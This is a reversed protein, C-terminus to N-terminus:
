EGEIGLQAEVLALVDSPQEAGDDANASDAAAADADDADRNAQDQRNMGAALYKAQLSATLGDGNTIAATATAMDGSAEGLTLHASVREREDEVGKAVAAAYVDPHQAKLQSLDMSTELPEDGGTSATTTNNAPTSAIADIMGRSLADNAVLVSGQGFQANVTAVTSNRGTAIADAFLEHLADLEERVKAQGAETKLDPRKNPAATSTISVSQNSTYASVVIGISGVRAAPTQATLTDVQSALAYAASAAVNEVTGTIPKSFAQLAAIAQFLGDITGGPSDFLLELREVDPDADAREVANIISQYTLNGGGFISAFFDPRATMVGRIPLTAVGDEVTLASGSVDELSLTLAEFKQIQEATPAFGSTRATEIEAKVAAELLWIAM